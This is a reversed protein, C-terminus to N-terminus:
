STFRSFVQDVTAQNDPTIGPATKIQDQVAQKFTDLAAPTAQTHTVGLFTAYGYQLDKFAQEPNNTTVGKAVNLTTGQIVGPATASTAPNSVDAVGDPAATHSAYPNADQASVTTDSGAQQEAGANDADPPLGASNAFNLNAANAANAQDLINHFVTSSTGAGQLADDLDNGSELGLAADHAQNNLANMYDAGHAVESGQGNAQLGRLDTQVQAQNVQLNSLAQQVQAAQDTTVKKDPAADAQEKLQKLKKVDNAANGQDYKLQAASNANNIAVTM